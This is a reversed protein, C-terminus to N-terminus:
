SISTVCILSIGGFFVNWVMPKELGFSKNELPSWKHPASFTACIRSLPSFLHAFEVDTAALKEFVYVQGKSLLMGLITGSQVHLLVAASLRELATTIM